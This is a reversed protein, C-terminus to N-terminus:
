GLGIRLGCFSSSTHSVTFNRGRAKQAALRLVGYCQQWLDTYPGIFDPLASFIDEKRLSCLYVELTIRFRARM